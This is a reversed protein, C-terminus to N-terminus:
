LLTTIFMIANQLILLCTGHAVGCPFKTLTRVNDFSNHMVMLVKTDDAYTFPRVVESIMLLFTFCHVWYNNPFTIDSVVSLFNSIQNNVCVCQLNMEM